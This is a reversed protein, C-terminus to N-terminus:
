VTERSRCILQLRGSFSNERVALIPLFRFDLTMSGRLCCAYWKDRRSLRECDTWPRLRWAHRIACRHCVSACPRAEYDLVMAAACRHDL